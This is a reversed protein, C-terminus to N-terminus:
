HQHKGSINEHLAIETTNKMNKKAVGQAFNKIM